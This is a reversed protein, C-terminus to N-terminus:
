NEVSSLVRYDNPNLEYAREFDGLALLAFPQDSDILLARRANERALETNRLSTAVNYTAGTFQPYGAEFGYMMANFAYAEAFEPDLAVAKELAEHVPAM